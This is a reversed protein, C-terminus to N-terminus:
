RMDLVGLGDGFPDQLTWTLLNYNIDASLESTWSRTDDDCLVGLALAASGRLEADEDEDQMLALLPEIAASDGLVGAASVLAVRDDLEEAEEVADLLGLAAQQDGVLRLAISASGRLMPSLEEEELVTRLDDAAERAGMMGLALAAYSRVEDPQDPDLRERVAELSDHDRLVGVGLASATARELSRSGVADRLSSTVGSPVAAHDQSRQHGMLSLSLAAWAPLDDRGTALVRECHKQAQALGRGSAEHDGARAACRALAVLSLRRQLEEGRKASAMLADRIEKDVTDDDGDGLIGLATVCSHKVLPPEKSRRGAAEALVEAVREKYQPDAGV